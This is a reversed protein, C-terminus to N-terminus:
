SPRLSRVVAELAAQAREQSSHPAGFYAFIIMARGSPALTFASLAFSPSTGDSKLTIRMWASRSAADWRPVNVEARVDDAPTDNLGAQVQERADPANFEAAFEELTMEEPLDLRAIGFTPPTPWPVNGVAFAAELTGDGFGAGAQRAADMEGESLRRWSAPLDVAYGADSHFTQTQQAAAPAAALVAILVALPRLHMTRPRTSPLRIPLLSIERM